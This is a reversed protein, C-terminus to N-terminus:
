DLLNSHVSELPADETTGEALQCNAQLRRSELMYGPHTHWTPHGAEHSQDVM